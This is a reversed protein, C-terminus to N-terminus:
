PADTPVDSPQVTGEVGESFAAGFGYRVANIIADLIGVEPNEFSGSFPVRTGVRESKPNTLVDEMASVLSEWIRGLLPREDDTTNEFVLDRFFPKVYGEFAGDRAAVELALDFFGQSVDIGGYARLMSNYAPLPLNKVTLDVDFLPQTALPDIRLEVELYGEEGAAGMLHIRAPLEDDSAGSARRNRLGQAEVEITNISVDVHPDFTQDVFQVDGRAVTLRTIEFPFLDQLAQQWRGDGETQGTEESETRVITVNPKEIHVDSSIRGRWLERWAMSFELREVTLLPAGASGGEKRLEIGSAAYAGRILSLDVDRVRADYDPIRALRDNVANRILYPAALRLAVLLLVLVMLAIIGRRALPHRPTRPPGGRVSSVPEVPHRKTAM